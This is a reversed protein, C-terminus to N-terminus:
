QLSPTGNLIITLIIGMSLLCGSLGLLKALDPREFLMTAREEDSAFIVAAPGRRIKLVPAGASANLPISGESWNLIWSACRM